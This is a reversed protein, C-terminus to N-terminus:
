TTRAFILGGSAMRFKTDGAAVGRDTLGPKKLRLPWVASQWVPIKKELANQVRADFAMGRDWGSKQVGIAM